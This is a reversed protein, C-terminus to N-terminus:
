SLGEKCVFFVGDGNLDSVWRDNSNSLIVSDLLAVLHELQQEEIGGRVNRCFSSVLPSQLKGAVSIDKKTDLAFLRPFLSLFGKGGFKKAALVLIGFKVWTNKREGKKFVMSFFEKRLNEWRTLFQRRSRRFSAFNIFVVATPHTDCAAEITSLVLIAIEEKGFLLKQFGEARNLSRSRSFSTDRYCSVIDAAYLCETPDVCRTISSCIADTLSCDINLIKSLSLIMPRESQCSIAVFNLTCSYLVM